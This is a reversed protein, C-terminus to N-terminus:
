RAPQRPVVAQQGQFETWAVRAYGARPLAGCTENGATKLNGHRPGVPAPAASDACEGDHDDYDSM